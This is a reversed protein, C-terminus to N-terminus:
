FKGLHEHLGASFANQIQGFMNQVASEFAPVISDSFSERFNSQLGQNVASTLSTTIANEVCRNLLGPLQRSLFDAFVRQIAGGVVARLTNKIETQITTQLIEMMSQMAVTSHERMRMDLDEHGRHTNHLGDLRSSIDQFSVDLRKNVSHFARGLKHELVQILRKVNSVSREFTEVLDSLDPNIRLASSDMETLNQLRCMERDSAVLGPEDSDSNMREQMREAQSVSLLHMAAATVSQSVSSPPEPNSDQGFISDLRESRMRGKMSDMPSLPASPRRIDSAPTESNSSKPTSLARSVVAFTGENETGTTYDMSAALAPPRPLTLELTCDPMPIPMTAPKQVNPIVIGLDM